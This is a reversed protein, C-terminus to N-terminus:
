TIAAPAAAPFVFSASSLPPLVSSATRYPRVPPAASAMVSFSPYSRQNFILFANYLFVLPTETMYSFAELMSHRSIAEIVFYGICVGLMQLPVSFLNLYKLCFAKRIEKM